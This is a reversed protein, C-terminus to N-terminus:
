REVRGMIERSCCAGWVGILGAQALVLTLLGASIWNSVPSIRHTNVYWAVLLVGIVHVAVLLGIKAKSSM